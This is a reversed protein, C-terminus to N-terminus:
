HGLAFEPLNLLTWLLDEVGEKRSPATAVFQLALTQEESTPPRTLASLYLEEVIQTDSANSALLRAVRGQESTVKGHVANGNALHLAQSLDPRSVRECECTNTRRPRGFTTLFYSDVNSDPLQIARTGRPLKAFDETTGAAQNLADLLVEAPLRRPVRHTFFAGEADRAPAVEVALGYVRSTALTRLLHKVDCDHTVFDATLADLVAPYIPPNTTSLDDVPHVLGRGFLAGWYRNVLTRAFRPNEPSTAWDALAKRADGTLADAPPEWGLARPPLERGSNPHRLATAPSVKVSQLGGYAGGERTDKRAVGTFFAALGYYDDQSWVEFPHHHCKACALRVGLFIQATTEALEEPTKDVFYFAVPGQTYLNGEATLLERVVADFPANQRLRDRLWGAFSALGKEGLSRRHARLLDSWKLAWYDVYEPRALLEDILHERKQPDASAAFIRAEDATPLTGVLDLYARRVFEWDDAQAAPQLGLKRWEAAVLEDVFNAAPWDLAEGLAAFPTTVPVAAVLGHYRVTVAARGPGHSVVVGATDVTAVSEERLEYQAWGTVDRVQGDSWQARVRLGAQEDVALLLEQPAVEIREVHLDARPAPLGDAIWDYLIEYSEDSPDLRRGGGHPVELAPKRLLLSQDPAAPFVRRGRADKVLAEYDAAPDFGMLSLRLGGRGQFSGHCAGMNCGAKTLAPIVDRLFDIEGEEAPASPEAARVSAASCILLGILVVRTM